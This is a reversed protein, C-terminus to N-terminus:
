RRSRCWATPSKASRRTSSSTPRGTSRPCVRTPPASSGCAARSDTPVSRGCSGSVTPISSATGIRSESRTQSLLRRTTGAAGYSPSCGSRSMSARGRCCARRTCSRRHAAMASPHVGPVSFSRTSPCGCCGPDSASEASASPRCMHRSRGTGTGLGTSPTRASCTPGRRTFPTICRSALSAACGTSSTHPRRISTICTTGMCSTHVSDASCWPWRRRTERRPASWDFHRCRCRASRRM